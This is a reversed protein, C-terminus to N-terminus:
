APAVVHLDLMTAARTMQADYTVVAELADRLELAAALHIAGLSRLPGQLEGALDLQEDDLQILDIGELVARANAVAKSGKRWM